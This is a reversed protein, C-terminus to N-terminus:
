KEQREFSTSPVATKATANFAGYIYTMKVASLRVKTCNADALVPQFAVSLKKLLPDPKRTRCTWPCSPASSDANTRIFVALSTKSAGLFGRCAALNDHAHTSDLEVQILALCLDHEDLAM